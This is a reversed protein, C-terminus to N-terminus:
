TKYTKPIWNSSRQSTANAGNYYMLACRWDGVERNLTEGFGIRRKFTSAM